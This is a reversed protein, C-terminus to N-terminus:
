GLQYRAFSARVGCSDSGGSCRSHSGRHQRTRLAGRGHLHCLGRDGGARSANLMAGVSLLGIAGGACAHQVDFTSIARTIPFGARQLMGQVYAAVPKAQDLCTETGVVLYRLSAVDTPDLRSLIQTAAQAAMTATDEWCHPFRISMQGTRHRARELAVARQSNQSRYREIIADLTVKPRPIYVGLDSIGLTSSMSSM